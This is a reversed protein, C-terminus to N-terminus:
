PLNGRDFYYLQFNHVAAFILILTAGLMGLIAIPNLSDPAYYLTLIDHAMTMFTIFLVLLPAPYGFDQLIKPVSRALCIYILIGLYLIVIIATSYPTLYTQGPSDPFEFQAALTVYQLGSVMVYQLGSAMVYQFPILVSAIMAIGLIYNISKSM